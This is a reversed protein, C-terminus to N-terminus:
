GVGPVRLVGFGFVLSTILKKIQTTKMVQAYGISPDQSIDKSFVGTMLLSAGANDVVEDGMMGREM